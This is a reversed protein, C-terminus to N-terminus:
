PRLRISQIFYRSNSSDIGSTQRALIRYTTPAPLHIYYTMNATIYAGSKFPIESYCPIQTFDTKDTVAMTLSGTNSDIAALFQGNIIHLGPELSLEAITTTTGNGAIFADQGTKEKLVVGATDLKGNVIQTLSTLSTTLGNISKTRNTTEQSLQQQLATDAATRDQIEKDIKQNIPTLDVPKIADIRANIATDAATRDNVEKDIKTQLDTVAQERKSTETALNKKLNGVETELEKEKKTHKDDHEKMKEDVAIFGRVTPEGASSKPAPFNYNKTKFENTSNEFTNYM